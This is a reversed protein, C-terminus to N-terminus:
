RASKTIAFGTPPAPAVAMGYGPVIIVSKAEKLLDAAEQANVPVVEGAPQAAGGAAPAASEGGFGGAIVSLFNRNMARCMIYSLIAGSSGVLAGTVILLDNSLMFGTAAAAWGSYSNLMSVVVRMDAGGIAMVMHVGFLLAIVSMAVLPMMRPQIDPARLFQYGFWFVAVLGALNLWHRAPLLLPKGSIRGSLKGFAIVSGSLTVAGILVGVYIEIHHITAEAPSMGATATPDIYSAYGVLMAVLGVLSHMFAVLEPMQTMKVTRALFLGIAGGAVLAGAVWAIGAPAVRGAVTALVAIAMGIMGYLNGRRSSEPNSLGGLSLIFLITAGIYAVSTLSGSM